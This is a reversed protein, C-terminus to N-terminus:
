AVVWTSPKTLRGTVHFGVLNEDESIKEMGTIKVYSTESLTQSNNNTNAHLFAAVIHHGNAQLRYIKDLKDATTGIDDADAYIDADFTGRFVGPSLKPVRSGNATDKTLTEEVSWGESTRVRHAETYIYDVSPASDMNSSESVDFTLVGGFGNFVKTNDSRIQSLRLIMTRILEPQATNVNDQNIWHRGATWFTGNGASPSYVTKIIRVVENQMDEADQLSLNYVEEDTAVVRYRVTIEFLDRVEQYRPHEIVEEELDDAVKKVEIAKTSENGSIQPRAFFQVIETMTDTVTKNLRGTLAWNTEITDRLTDASFDGM